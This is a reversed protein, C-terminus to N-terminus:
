YGIGLPDDSVAYFPAIMKPLVMEPVDIMPLDGMVLNLMLEQSGSNPNRQYPNIKGDGGGVQSWHTIEGTYIKQIQELSLGEVPNGENLIFVFADLAVPQPNLTVGAAVAMELEDESPMRAVLILDARREILNVYASHTGNFGDQPFEGNFNTLDPFLSRNGSIDDFWHCPVGLTECALLMGLPMASTSGDIIPYSRASIDPLSSIEVPTATTIAPGPAPRCAGPLLVFTVMVLVAYLHAFLKKNAMLGEPEHYSNPSLCPPDQKAIDASLDVILAEDV